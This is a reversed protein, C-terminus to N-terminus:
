ARKPGAKDTRLMTVKPELTDTRLKQLTPDVTDNIPKDLTPEMKESDTILKAFTPEEMDSRDKARMPEANATNSKM